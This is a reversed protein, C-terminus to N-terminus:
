NSVRTAKSLGKGQEKRDVNLRVVKKVTKRVELLERKAIKDM